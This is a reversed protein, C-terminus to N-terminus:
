LSLGPSHRSALLCKESALNYVYLDNNAKDRNWLYLWV